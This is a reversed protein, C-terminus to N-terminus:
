WILVKREEIWEVEEVKLTLFPFYFEEGYLVRTSERGEPANRYPAKMELHWPSGM